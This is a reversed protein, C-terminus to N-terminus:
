DVDLHYVGAKADAFLTFRVEPAADGGRSLGSDSSDASYSFDTLDTLDTLDVEVPEADVLVFEGYADFDGPADAVGVHIPTDDPLGALVSRLRGATWVQPTHEFTDAM